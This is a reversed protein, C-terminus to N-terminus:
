TLWGVLLGAFRGLSERAYLYLGGTEDFRSSVEAVCCAFVLMGAGIISNLMLAILSWRGISCVLTREGDAL